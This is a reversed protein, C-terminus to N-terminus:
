LVVVYCEFLVRMSYIYKLYVRVFLEERLHCRSGQFQSVQDMIIKDDKLRWLPQRWCIKQPDPLPLINILLKDVDGTASLANFVLLKQSSRPM